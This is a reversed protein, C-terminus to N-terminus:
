AGAKANKRHTLIIDATARLNIMITTEATETQADRAAYDWAIDMLAAKSLKDLERVFREPVFVPRQNKLNM